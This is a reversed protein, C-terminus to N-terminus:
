TVIVKGRMVSPHDSCYYSFTGRSLFTYSFSAGPSLQGSASPDQSSVMANSITVTHFVNDQNTWTVTTGIPVQIAGPQFAEFHIFVHTVGHAVEPETNSIGAAKIRASIVGLSALALLCVVLLTILLWRTRNRM